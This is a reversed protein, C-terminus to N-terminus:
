SWGDYKIKKLQDKTILYFTEGFGRVDPPTCCRMVVLVECNLKCWALIAKKKECPIPITGAQKILQKCHKINLMLIVYLEAESLYLPTHTVIVTSNLTLTAAPSEPTCSLGRSTLKYNSLIDIVLASAPLRVCLPLLECMSDSTTKKQNESMLSHLFNKKIRAKSDKPSHFSFKRWRVRSHKRDQLFHPRLVRRPPQTSLYIGCHRLYRSGSADKEVCRQLVFLM